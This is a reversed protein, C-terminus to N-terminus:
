GVIDVIVGDGYDQHTWTAGVTWDSVNTHRGRYQKTMECDMLADWLTEPTTAM